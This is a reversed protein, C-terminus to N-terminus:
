TSCYTALSCSTFYCSFAWEALLGANAIVLDPTFGSRRLDDAWLKMGEEDCVDVARFYPDGGMEELLSGQRACGAVEVDRKQFETVLARGIGRSCGTVVVQRPM